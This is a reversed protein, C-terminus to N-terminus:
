DSAMRRVEKVAHTMTDCFVTIDGGYSIINFGLNLWEEAIQLNTPLIGVGLGYERGTDVVKRVAEFFRDHTFQGPIGLDQTLDFHGIWLADVGPTRAIAEVNDVGKQSEIQCIVTTNENAFSLFDKPDVKKFDSTTNGLAVGRNGMPAYKAADVIARAEDATKVNPVMIGLAGLDLTKAIFHYEIQPVRVIPTITTGKFWAILDSIETVGFPSHEMDLVVFDLDAADLIRAIGRTGFEMLMQGVATRGEAMVQKLRNPKM